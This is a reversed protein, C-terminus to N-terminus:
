ARVRVLHSTSSLYGPGTQGSPVYARVTWTGRHRRVTFHAVSNVDLVVRSVTIWRYGSRRQLYVVAGAFSDRGTVKTTWRRGQIGLGVRPRVGVTVGSSPATGAQAHYTTKVSPRVVVTWDGGAVSTTQTVPVAALADFERGLIVVREGAKHSSVTGSLRVAQCCTVVGRSATLTTTEAVPQPISQIASSRDSTANVSGFDNSATVRVQLTHGVDVSRVGYSEGTAGAIDSCGAGTQDCRQWQLALKRPVGGSFTGTKAVLTEGVQPKGSISPRATFAPAAAASVPDSPKSNIPGTTGSANSATVLVVLAHGADGQTLTYSQKTATPISRCNAGNADCRLWQYGYTTPANGWCGNGAGVTKGVVLTGEITPPCGNTPAGASQAAAATPVAVAVVV